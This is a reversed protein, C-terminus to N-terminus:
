EDKIKTNEFLMGVTCKLLKPAIIMMIILYSLVGIIFDLLIKVIAYNIELLSNTFQIVLWMVITGVIISSCNKMWIIFPFDTQSMIIASCLLVCVTINAITTALALGSAGMYKSLVFNLVINVLVGIAANMMPTRTDGGSYFYKAMLERVAIFAIGLGSYFFIKSTQSISSMDFAGRGFAVIILENRLVIAGVTVPLLIMLLLSMYEALLRSRQKVKKLVYLESFRKFAVTTVASLVLASFIVSLKNAYNLATISGTDLGSAIARDIIRNIEAIGVGITVPVVRSFVKKLDKWISNIGIPMKFVEVHPIVLLYMNVFIGIVTGLVAALAGIHSALMIMALITCLSQSLAAIAPYSFRNETNYCVTIVNIVMTFFITPFLMRTYRVTTVLIEGSFHPAFIKVISVAFVESAVVAIMCVIGFCVMASNLFIKADREGKQVKKESYIPLIVTNLASSIIAFLTVPIQNAMVYADSALSTGYYYAFISERVFALIQSLVTIFILGSVTNKVSIKKM